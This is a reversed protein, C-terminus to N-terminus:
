ANDGAGKKKKSNKKKDTAKEEVEVIEEASKEVEETKEEVEPEAVEPEVAPAPVSATFGQDIAANAEEDTLEYERGAAVNKVSLGSVISGSKIMKIKKM